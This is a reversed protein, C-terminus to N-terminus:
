GARGVAKSLKKHGLRAQQGPRGLDAGRRSERDEPGQSSRQGRLQGCSPFSSAIPRSGQLVGTMALRSGVQGSGDCQPGQKPVALVNAAAAATLTEVPQSDTPHASCSLRAGGGKGPCSLVPRRSATPSSARMDGGVIEVQRVKRVAGCASKKIPPFLGQIPGGLEQLGGQGGYCPASPTHPLFAVRISLMCRPGLLGLEGTRIVLADQCGRAQSAM